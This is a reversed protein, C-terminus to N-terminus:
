AAIPRCVTGPPLVRWVSGRDQKGYSAVAMTNEPKTRVTPQGAKSDLQHGQIRSNPEHNVSWVRNPAAVKRNGAKAQRLAESLAEIIIPNM